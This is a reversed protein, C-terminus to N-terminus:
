GAITPLKGNALSTAALLITWPVLALCVALTADKLYRYKASVIESNRWIQRIIEVKLSQESISVYRALYEEEKLSSIAQFYVLSNAGGRLHPYTCWYLNIFTASMLVAFVIGPVAIWWHHLDPVTINVAAVAIQASSIAFLASVKADIRPFFAQVRDLQREAAELGIPDTM